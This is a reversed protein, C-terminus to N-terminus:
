RPRRASSEFWRGRTPLLHRRLRLRTFGSRCRTGISFQRVCGGRTSGGPVPTRHVHLSSYGPPAIDNMIAPPADSSIWTETLAIVDLDFDEILVHLPAAKNVASRINFVGLKLPIRTSIKTNRPAPPGPNVQIDGALLLLLAFLVSSRSRVSTPKFPMSGPPTDM